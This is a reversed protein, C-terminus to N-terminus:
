IEKSTPFRGKVRYFELAWRADKGFEIEAWTRITENKDSFVQKSTCHKTIRRFIKGM